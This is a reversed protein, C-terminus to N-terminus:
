VSEIMGCWVSQISRTARIDKIPDYSILVLGARQGSGISSCDKHGFYMAPLSTATRLADVTSLGADVLLELDHRLSEGHVVQAPVGPQTNAHTGALIPVGALYMATLSSRAHAYDTGPRKMRM